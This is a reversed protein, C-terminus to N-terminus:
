ESEKPYSLGVNPETVPLQEELMDVLQDKTIVLGLDDAIILNAIIIKEKEEESLEIWRKTKIMEWYDWATVGVENNNEIEYASCNTLTLNSRKKQRISYLSRICWGIWYLIIAGVIETIYLFTLGWIEIMSDYPHTPSYFNRHSRDPRALYTIDTGPLFSNKTLAIFLLSAIIASISIMGTWKLILPSLLWERIKKNVLILPFFLVMLLLPPIILFWIVDWALDGILGLLIALIIGAVIIGYVPRSILYSSITNIIKKTRSKYIMSVIIMLLSIAVGFSCCYKYAPYIWHQHDYYADAFGAAAFAVTPTSFLIILVKRM